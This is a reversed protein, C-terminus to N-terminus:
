PQKRPHDTYSKEEIYASHYLTNIEKKLAARQDNEQYVSRALQIFIEGFDQRQEQERIAEEIRWLNENVQKLQAVLKSDIDLSLNRFTTQLAQLEKHVNALARDQLHQSKIELITIKDVLEGLSIPALIAQGEQSHPRLQDLSNAVREMVEGWNGREQQRFLRMSPYWFSHDGELGWRWEPSQKLLLWITRGMGGALHAMATDCSIVLDCNAIIAATELFDWTQNVQDQCSVFRDQFSCTQLQDSGFGKQLSLLSGGSKAALPAFTELPLSRGITNAREQDPNGQWNIAIIPRAETALITRWKATLATTTQIYPTNILPNDPNVNLFGPVSLLPSWLGDRIQNAEEPSLPFPDIGSAQILGHLKTPACLSVRYGRQRLTIAYRMFQLTDGLGQESVLLLREAVSAEQGRWRECQPRADPIPSDKNNNRLRYEYRKWGSKYHGSQLEAMSLNNEFEPNNPKYALAQLFAEIAAGPQGQEQLAVGLNNYADAHDPKLAIADEYAAIAAALQGQEQLTIGLRNLTDPQNPKLALAQRYSASAAGLNGQEKFAMGLNHHAEPYDARLQLARSFAQIAADLDGREKLTLGLNNYTDARNPNLALARNYARIAANLEGKKKLAIGLNNHTEQHDPSLALARQYSAIAADLDGLKQLTIGRNYHAEPHNPNLAIAKNYATIASELDGKEKLAVGLNTYTDPHNPNLEIAKNYAAIAADFDAKQLLANGLNNHAAHDNPNLELTKNLLEVLEDFRGLM